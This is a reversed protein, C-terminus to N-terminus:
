ILGRAEELRDLAEEISILSDVLDCVIGTVDCKCCLSHNDFDPVYLGCLAEKVEDRWGFVPARPWLYPEAFFDFVEPDTLATAVIYFPQPRHGARILDDHPVVFIGRRQSWKLLLHRDM